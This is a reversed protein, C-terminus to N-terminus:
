YSHLDASSIDHRLKLAYYAMCDTALRFMLRMAMMVSLTFTRTFSHSEKTETGQEQDAKAIIGGGVNGRAGIGFVTIMFDTTIRDNTEFSITMTDKDATETEGSDAFVLESSGGSFSVASYAKVTEVRSSSASTGDLNKLGDFLSPAVISSSKTLSAGGVNVQTSTLSTATTSSLEGSDARQHLKAM